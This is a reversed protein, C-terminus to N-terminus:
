STTMNALDTFPNAESKSLDVTAVVSFCSDDSMLFQERNVRQYNEKIFPNEVVKLGYNKEIFESIIDSVQTNTLEIKVKFLSQSDM